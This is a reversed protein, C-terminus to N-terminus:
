RNIRVDTANMKAHVTSTVFVRERGEDLHSIFQWAHCLGTMPTQTECRLSESPSGIQCIRPCSKEEWTKSDEAPTELLKVKGTWKKLFSNIKKEGKQGWSGRHGERNRDITDGNVRLRIWGAKQVEVWRGCGRTKIEHYKWVRGKRRKGGGRGPYTKM